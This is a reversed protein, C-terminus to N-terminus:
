AWIRRQRKVALNSRVTIGVQRVGLHQIRWYHESSQKRSGCHEGGSPSDASRLRVFCPDHVLDYDVCYSKENSNRRNKTKNRLTHKWQLDCKIYPRIGFRNGQILKAMWVIEVKLSLLIGYLIHRSQSDHIDQRYIMSPNM